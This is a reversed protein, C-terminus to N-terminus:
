CRVMASKRTPTIKEDGSADLGFVRVRVPGYPTKEMSDAIGRLYEILKGFEMHKNTEPYQWKRKGHHTIVLVGQRREEPKLYNGALQKELTEKLDNASWGKNGHKIEMAMEPNAATSSIVIDPKNRRSVEPERHVHYREKSRFRMQEALWKQVEEENEARQLVARSSVDSMGDFGSQIDALVDLVVRFLREGSLVPTIYEREFTLVDSPKWASLEADQEARTHALENFRLAREGSFLSEDALRRIAAHAEPGPRHLLANLIANRASEAHDRAKPTFVGKHSIDDEPRVHCYVLRVLTEICLVPTDDLAEGALSIHFRDFLKGLCILALENRSIPPAGELPGDLWDILEAAAEVADTLFLMALYRLATETDDTKRAARFRRRALHAIRKSEAEDLSLRPLIALVDDLTERYKPAKGALLELVLQRIPAPILHNEGRYHSLLTGYPGGGTWEKKMVQRIIPSAIVPHQGILDHLWDPYGWASFCAHQIARQVEPESLRAAWDPDERAEVGLGVFSLYTTHKTTTTDDDHHKPREPPTIRWLLKMGDRYNEAVSRGFGEELLRWQTPGTDSRGVRHELWSALHYLRFSGRAWDSLLERDSLISPDTNLEERFAIWSEKERREQEERKRQRENKEQCWRRVGEDEEPPALYGDLDALLVPNDGIRQRLHDAEIHLKDEDRLITLIASLAVQRDEVLPRAALDQYLWDLDDPGFHWWLRSYLRTQWLRTIQNKQHSRADVVDAWLLKRKLHPNSAVLESLSPKEDRNYEDWVREIAMLLRILGVSPEAGGLASVAKLGLPKLSKALTRHRASTRDRRENSFPPTLCLDAIGALLSERDSAPAVDWFGTLSEKHSSWDKDTLPYRDLLALFQNMSLYRPYLTGAFHFLLRHEVSGEAVMLWRAAETLGEADDCANLAELAAKRLYPEDTEVMVADRALDTCARIKGETVMRLLDIRFEERRNSNWCERIAGALGPDTFMWMARHDIRFWFNDNDGIEGLRDREAYRMLLQEKAALPLSGPDGSEGLLVLPEGRIIEDRIDDRWLALWAAVARLSLVLTEVGYREAFILNWMGGRM